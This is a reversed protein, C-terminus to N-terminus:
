RVVRHTSAWPSPGCMGGGCGVGVWPRRLVTKMKINIMRLSGVRSPTTLLRSSARNNCAIGGPLSDAKGNASSSDGPAAELNFSVNHADRTRSLEQLKALVGMLVRRTKMKMLQEAVASPPKSLQPALGQPLHLCLDIRSATDRSTRQCVCM